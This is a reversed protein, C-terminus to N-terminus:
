ENRLEVQQLWAQKQQFWPRAGFLLLQTKGNAVVVAGIDLLLAWDKDERIKSLEFGVDAGEAHAQVSRLAFVSPTMLVEGTVEFQKTSVADLVWQPIATNGAILATLPSADKAEATLHTRIRVEPQIRVMAERLRVRGWWDAIEPAADGKFDVQSGSLDTVGGSQTARLALTLDGAMRDSGVHIHLGRGAIRVDGNCALRGLDVDLRVSASASGTEVAVDPPLSLLAALAPLSPVQIHPADMAMRGTLGDAGIAADHAHADVASVVIQVGRIMANLNRLSAESDAFDIRVPDWRGDRVVAHAELDTELTMGQLRLTARRATLRADGAVQHKRLDLRGLEVDGDLDGQAGANGHAVLLSRLAFSLHGSATEDSIGGALHGHATLAGSAIEVDSTPALRGRWYSLSDTWAGEMDVAYTTDSFPQTLDLQRSSLSAAIAAVRAKSAGEASLRATGVRLEAYGVNAEDVHLDAQLSAEFTLGAASAEAGFSTAHLRTGAGLVGHDIHAHFEIPAEARAVKLGKGDTARNLATALHATGKLDGDISAYHVMDGGEVTQLNLPHITVDLRGVLGSVWPEIMGYGVDLAHVEVVAPGVELWRIPRFLWRGRIELDGAYRLTDIWVERVHDAVVDDLEISWLNYNADTLPPPPPGVDKLPPDPFGPVPPLAAMKEPTVVAARLRVRMSVGDGRVHEAHFKKHALDMFVVRLDCRDLRLIWEVHSDRGRISLGEVHIRGPWWSYATAYDVLLTDPDASIANRFLRTRLFVNMGILYLLAVGGLVLATWRALKRLMRSRRAGAPSRTGGETSSVGHTAGPM